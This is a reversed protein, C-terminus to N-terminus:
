FIPRGEKMFIKVIEFIIVTCSFSAIGLLGGAIVDSFYHVQTFIRSFPVSIIGFFLLSHTIIKQKVSLKLTFLYLIAIFIFISTTAHGSPFSSEHASLHFPNEPRERETLFKMIIKITQGGAVGLFLFLVEEKKKFFWLFILLVLFWLIFIKPDFLQTIFIFINNIIENEHLSSILNNIKKDLLFFSYNKEIFLSYWITFFAFFSVTALGIFSIIKKM